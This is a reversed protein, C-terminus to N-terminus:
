ITLSETDGSGKTESTNVNGKTPHIIKKKLVHKCNGKAEFYEDNPM